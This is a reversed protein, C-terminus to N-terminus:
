EIDQQSQKYKNNDNNNQPQQQLQALLKDHQPFPKCVEARNGVIYLHKKARSLAVNVRQRDSLFPSRETVQCLAVCIVCLCMCVCLCICFLSCTVYYQADALLILRTIVCM